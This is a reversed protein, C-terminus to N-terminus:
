LSKQWGGIMRGIEQLYSQIILYKKRDLIKLDNALRIFLKLLDFKASAESIIEKKKERPAASALFILEMIQIIQTECKGGLAYKDKKPFLELYGYFIKYVEYFKTIIPIENKFNNM